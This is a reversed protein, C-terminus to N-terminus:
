GPTTTEADQDDFATAANPTPVLVWRKNGKADRTHREATVHGRSILAQVVAEQDAEAVGFDRSLMTHASAEGARPDRAFLMKPDGGIGDRLTNLLAPLDITSLPDHGAGRVVPELVVVSTFATPPTKRPDIADISVAVKKFVGLPGARGHNTKVLEAEIFQGPFAPVMGRKRAEEDSLVSLGVVNRASATWARSGRQHDQDRAQSGAGKSTHTLLVVAADSCAALQNFFGMAATVDSASNEDIGALAASATDVVILAFRQGTVADLLAQGAPMVRPTEHGATRGFLQMAGSQGEIVVVEHKSQWPLGFREKTGTMRRVVTDSRDEALVLLVDGCFDLAGLGLATPDEHAIAAAASVVFASKGGSPVGMLVTTTGREFGFAITRTVGLVPKTQHSNLRLMNFHSARGITSAAPLAPLSAVVGFAELGDLAEQVEASAGADRLSMLARRDAPSLSGAALARQTIASVESVDARRFTRAALSRDPEGIAALVTPQDDPAVHRILNDLVDQVAPNATM